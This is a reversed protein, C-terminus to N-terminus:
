ATEPSNCFQGPSVTTQLGTGISLWAKGKEWLQHHHWFDASDGGLIFLRKITEMASVVINKDRHTERLIIIGHTSIADATDTLYM